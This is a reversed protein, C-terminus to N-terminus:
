HNPEDPLTPQFVESPPEEQAGGDERQMGGQQSTGAEDDNIGSLYYFTTNRRSRRRNYAKMEAVFQNLTPISVSPADVRAAAERIQQNIMNEVEGYQYPCYGRKHGIIGCTTCLKYVRQYKFPVWMDVGDDRTIMCSPM